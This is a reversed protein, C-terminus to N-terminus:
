PVLLDPRLVGGGVSGGGGFFELFVECIRRQGNRKPDLVFFQKLFENTLRNRDYCM